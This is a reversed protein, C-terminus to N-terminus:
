GAPYTGLEQLLRREAIREPANLRLLQLTVRAVDTLPVIYGRDIKFHDNWRDRRPHFLRVTEGTGPHISAIDSGKRRNCVFCAFALNDSTSPGGHKRSM